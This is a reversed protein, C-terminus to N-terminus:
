LTTNAQNFLDKIANKMHNQRSMKKENQIHIVIKELDNILNSLYTSEDEFFKKNNENGTKKHYQRMVHDANKLHMVKENIKIYLEEPTFWFKIEKKGEDEYDISLDM